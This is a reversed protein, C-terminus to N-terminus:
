RAPLLGDPLRVVVFGVEIDIELITEETAPILVEGYEAGDVVYVDNAGTELVETIQGLSRGDETRVDLGIMQFIYFEGEGLPVAEDLPIMVWLQRLLDAANRDGVGHFRLLAYGQHM